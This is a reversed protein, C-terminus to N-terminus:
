GFAEGFVLGPFLGPFTPIDFRRIALTWLPEADNNM